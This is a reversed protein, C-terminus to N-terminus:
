GPDEDFSWRGVLRIGSTSGSLPLEVGDWVCGTGYDSSLLLGVPEVKTNM